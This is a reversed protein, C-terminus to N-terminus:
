CRPKRNRFALLGLGAFSLVAFSSPEPISSLDGKLSVDDIRYQTGASNNTWKIFLTQTIPLSSDVISISRWTSTGTGTPQAAFALNSYSLGDTSYQLVLDTNMNAANANKHAGFTLDLSGALFDSTDIAFIEFTRSSNSTLFVNGGGSAGAYGTSALSTRVDGTGRFQLVGNNEWGTYNPILTTASPAGINESFVVTDALAFSAILSSYFCAVLLLLSCSRLIM